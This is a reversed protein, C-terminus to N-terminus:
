IVVHAQVALADDLARTQLWADSIQLTAGSATDVQALGSLVNGNQLTQSGDHQLAIATLGLSLLSHLEGADTSGDQNADVWVQLRGFVADLSTIAGDGNSDHQALAQWGDAAQGGQAVRTHNGFLESGDDIRGNGNIDLVLLGDHAGVWAVQKAHGSADIDFAVGDDVSTTFVGDGNLDIVLPSTTSVFTSDVSPARGGNFVYVKLGANVQAITAQYSGAGTMLVNGAADRLQYNSGGSLTVNVCANPETRAYEAANSVRVDFQTDVVTTTTARQTTGTQQQFSEVRVSVYGDNWDAFWGWGFLGFCDELGINSVNTYNFGGNKQSLWLSSKGSQYLMLDTVGVHQSGQYVVRDTGDTWGKSDNIDIDGEQGNSLKYRIRWDHGVSDGSVRTDDLITRYMTTHTAVTQYTTVSRSVSSGGSLSATVPNIVMQLTADAINVGPSIGSVEVDLSAYVNRGNGVGPANYFSSGAENADPVFRLRGANIDQVSITQGASVSTWVNNANRLQLAGDTPLSNIVLERVLSIGTSNSLGQVDARGFVYATDEWGTATYTANSATSAFSFVPTDAIAFNLEVSDGGAATQVVLQQQGTSLKPMDFSWQGAADSTTRGVTHGTVKDLVLITQHAGAVGSIVPTKDSLTAGNSYLVRMAGENDLVGHVRLPVTSAAQAATAAVSAVAAPAAVEPAAMSAVSATAAEAPAVSAVGAVSAVHAVGWQPLLAASAGGLYTLPSSLWNHVAPVDALVGAQALPVDAVRAHGTDQPSQALDAEPAPDTSAQVSVFEVADAQSAAVQAEDDAAMPRKKALAQAPTLFRQAGTHMAKPDVMAASSSASLSTPTHRHNM